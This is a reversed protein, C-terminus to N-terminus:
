IKADYAEEIPPFYAFCGFIATNWIVTLMIALRMAASFPPEPGGVWRSSLAILLKLVTAGSLFMIVWRYISIWFKDLNVLKWASFLYLGAAGLFIFPLRQVLPGVSLGATGACPQFMRPIVGFVIQPRASFFAAVSSDPDSWPVLALLLYVAARLLTFALIIRIFLPLGLGTRTSERRHEEPIEYPTPTIGHM